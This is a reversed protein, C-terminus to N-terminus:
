NEYSAGGVFVLIGIFIELIIYVTCVGIYGGTISLLPQCFHGGNSAQVHYVDYSSDVHDTTHKM